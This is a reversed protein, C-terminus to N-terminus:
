RRNRRAELEQQTEECRNLWLRQHDAPPAVMDSLDKITNIGEGDCRGVCIEYVEWDMDDEDWFVRVESLGGLLAALARTHGDTFVIKGRLDKVPIPPLRGSPVPAFDRMVQSLKESSIFLQSPQIEDLRVTFVGTM